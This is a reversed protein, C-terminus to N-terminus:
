VSKLVRFSGLGSNRSLGLSPAGASPAASPAVAPAAASPTGAPPAANPDPPPANVHIVIVQRVINTSSTGPGSVATSIVDQSSTTRAESAKVGATVGATGGTFPSTAGLTGGATAEVGLAVSTGTTRSTTPPAATSADLTAAVNITLGDPSQGGLTGEFGAVAGPLVQNGPSVSVQAQSLKGDAGVTFYTLVTGGFEGLGLPHAGAGAAGLIIAQIKVRHFGAPADWEVDLPSQGQDRGVAVPEGDVYIIYGALTFVSDIGGPQRPVLRSTRDCQIAPAPLSTVSGVNATSAEHESSHDEDVVPAGALQDDKFAAQQAVHTLEHSLLQRGVPTAPMYQDPSMFVHRGVTFAHARIAEAAGAAEADTHVRVNSFDRGFTTEFPQRVAPEIPLGPRRLLRDIDPSQESSRAVPFQRDRHHELSAVM